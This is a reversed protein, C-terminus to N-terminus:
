HLKPKSSRRSEYRRRYVQQSLSPFSTLAYRLPRFDFNRKRSTTGSSGHFVRRTDYVDDLRDRLRLTTFINVSTRVYIQGTKFSMELSLSIISYRVLSVPRTSTYINSTATLTADQQLREVTISQRWNSHCARLLFKAIAFLDRTLQACLVSLADIPM